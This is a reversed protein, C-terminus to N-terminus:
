VNILNVFDSMEGNKRYQFIYKDYFYIVETLM